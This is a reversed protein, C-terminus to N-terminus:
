SKITPGFYTEFDALIKNPKVIRIEEKKKILLEMYREQINTPIPCEEYDTIKEVAVAKATPRDYKRM